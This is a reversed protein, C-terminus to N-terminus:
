TTNFLEERSIYMNKIKLSNNEKGNEAAEVVELYIDLLSNIGM